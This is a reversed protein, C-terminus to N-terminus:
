HCIIVKKITNSTYSILGSKKELSRVCNCLNRQCSRPDNKMQDDDDDDYDDDDDNNNNNNNNNDNIIINCACTSHGIFALSEM